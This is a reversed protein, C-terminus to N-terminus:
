SHNLKSYFKQFIHRQNGWLKGLKSYFKPWKTKFYERDKYKRQYKTETQFDIIVCELFRMQFNTM